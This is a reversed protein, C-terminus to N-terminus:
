SRAGLRLMDHDLTGFDENSKGDGGSDRGEGSRECIDLRLLNLLLRQRSGGLCSLSVHVVPVDVGAFGKPCGESLDDSVAPGAPHRNSM